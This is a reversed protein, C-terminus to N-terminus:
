FAWRWTQVTIVFTLSLVLQCRVRFGDKKGRSGPNRQERCLQCCPAHSQGLASLLTHTNTHTYLERAASPESKKNTKKHIESWREHRSVLPNKKKKEPSKKQETLLWSQNKTKTFVLFAGTVKSCIRHPSKHVDDGSVPEPVRQQTRKTQHYKIAPQLHRHQCLLRTKGTHQPRLSVSTSNQTRLTQVPSQHDRLHLTSDPVSVSVSLPLVTCTSYYYKLGM